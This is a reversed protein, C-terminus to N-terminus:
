INFYEILNIWTHKLYHIISGYKFNFYFHSTEEPVDKIVSKIKSLSEIIDERHIKNSGKDNYFINNLQYPDINM